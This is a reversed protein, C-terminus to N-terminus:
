LNFPDGIMRKMTDQEKLFTPLLFPRKAMRRTGHELYLAYEIDSGVDAIVDKGEDRMRYKISNRLTGTRVAPPEGPMSAQYTARTGPVKYRKGTRQGSLTIKTQNSLHIAAKEVRRFLIRKINIDAGIFSKSYSVHKLQEAM